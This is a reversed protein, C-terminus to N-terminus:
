PSLNEEGYIHLQFIRPLIKGNIKKKLVLPKLM